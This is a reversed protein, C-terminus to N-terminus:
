WKVGSLINEKEDLHFVRRANGRMIPEVLELADGLSLWGEEVLESLALSIGRRAMVAHGLVPEVVYYDGGFTLIKNAPATLLFKKLFDKAALPNLIWAWCMDVYANSYQKAVAIMEEYYPYGIHMLVFNAGPARRCLDCASAPNRRVMSLPMQNAGTLYGTHLKVPLGHRVAQDVAYWFLHDELSKAEGGTLVQGARKKRFLPAAREASVPEYDIDRDYANQSKVAIAFRGYRAGIRL